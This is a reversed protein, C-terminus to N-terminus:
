RWQDMTTSDLIEGIRHAIFPKYKRHESNIWSLVTKSDTWFTSGIIKLRTEQRVTDALRVGLLAAQLELRPISLPKIPAVRSKAAMIRVCPNQQTNSRAYVIAAFAKDSADVFTHLEIHTGVDKMVWRPIRINSATQVKEM